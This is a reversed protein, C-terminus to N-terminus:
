GISKCIMIQMADILSNKYMHIGGLSGMHCDDSSWKETSFSVEIKAGNPPIDKTFVLKTTVYDAAIKTTVKNNWNDITLNSSTTAPKFYYGYANDIYCGDGYREIGDVKISYNRIGRLKQAVNIDVGSANVLNYENSGSSTTNNASNLFASGVRTQNYQFRKIFDFANAFTCEKQLALEKIKDPYGLLLRTTFACLGTSVLGIQVDENYQRVGDVVKDLWSIFGDIRKVMVTRGTLDSLKRINLIEQPKLPKKFTATRTAIDWTDIIRTVVEREDFHYDGIILYDGKKVSSLDTNTGNIKVSNRTVEEITLAATEITYNDVAVYKSSKLWLTPYRRLAAETVDTITKTAVFQNASDWDDNTGSEVFLIDPDFRMLYHYNRLGNDNYLKEATWGGIGANMIYHMRNTIFNLIFYPSVTKNARPDYGKIKFMFEREKYEAFNWTKVSREDTERFDLGSSLAAPNAPDFSIEDDGYRSELAGEISETIEGITSKTYIINEGYSMTVEINARAAPANKLYLFHHVETEQTDPNQGYKRIIMYDHGNPFTAGSEADNIKGVLTIGNVKVVHNYTFARGLDFKVTTGDGIANVVTNGYPETNYNSFTDYLQGDVYLEIIAAGKNSRELGHVISLEDGVLSFSVSSETGTMKRATRKYFKENTIISNAGKFLLSPDSHLYTNSLYDRLYYDIERVFGDDLLGKGWTISSGTMAVRLQKRPNNSVTTGNIKEQLSKELSQEVVTGPLIARGDFNESFLVQKDDDMWIDMWGLYVKQTNLASQFTVYVTLYDGLTDIVSDIDENLQITITQAGTNKTITKLPFFHWEGTIKKSLLRYTVNHKLNYPFYLEVTANVKSLKLGSQRIEHLKKMLEPLEFRFYPTASDSNCEFEFWFPTGMINNVNLNKIGKQLFSGSSELENGQKIMPKNQIINKADTFWNIRNNEKIITVSSDVDGIKSLLLSKDFINDNTKGMWFSVYSIKIVDNVDGGSIYLYMSSITKTNDIDQEFVDAYEKGDAKLNFMTSKQITGDTYRVTIGARILTEGTAKNIKYNLAGSIKKYRKAYVPIEVGANAHESTGPNLLQKYNSTSTVTLKLLKKGFELENNDTFEETMNSKPGFIAVKEWMVNDGIIAGGLATTQYDVDDGLKDKTVAKPDIRANSVPSTLSDKATKLADNSNDIAMNIKYYSQKITEEGTLKPADAM